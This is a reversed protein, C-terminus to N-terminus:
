KYPVKKKIKRPVIEEYYFYIPRHVRKAHNSTSVPIKKLVTSNRYKSFCKIIKNEDIKLVVKTERVSMQDWVAPLIGMM